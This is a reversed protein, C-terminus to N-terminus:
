GRSKRIAYQTVQQTGWKSGDLTIIRKKQASSIRACVNLSSIGMGTGFILPKQPLEGCMTLLISSVGLLCMGPGFRTSQHITHPVRASPTATRTGWLVGSFWRWDIVEVMHPVAVERARRHNHVKAM